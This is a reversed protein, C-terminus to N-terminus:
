ASGKAHFQRMDIVRDFADLLDHDHTVVVLTTDRAAVQELLLNLVRQKNEPDLNGTPEDALILPPSTILARCIAARQREGHSLEAPHGHLRATIGTEQALKELRSLAQDDQELASSLRYPLLLNDRVSLYEILEFAQFVLGIRRIRFRRRGAESLQGLSQDAVAIEGAQPLRIGAILDLLTTKGSGSAGVVAVREGERIDLSPVALRFPSDPYRFELNRITIVHAEDNRAPSHPPEPNAPAVTAEGVVAFLVHLGNRAGRRLKVPDRPWRAM